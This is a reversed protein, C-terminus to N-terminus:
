CGSAWHCLIKGSIIVSVQQAFLSSGYSVFDFSLTTTATTSPLTVYVIGVLTVAGTVSLPSTSSVDEFSLLSIDGSSLYYMQVNVILIGAIDLQFNGGVNLQSGSTISLIGDSSGFSFLQNASRECCVNVTLAHLTVTLPCSILDKLKLGVM